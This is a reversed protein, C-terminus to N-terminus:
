TIGLRHPYAILITLLSALWSCLVMGVVALCCDKAFALGAFVM